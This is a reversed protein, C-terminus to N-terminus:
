LEKKMFNKLIELGVSGSKEPHFQTAFINDKEISATFTENAYSCTAGTYDNLPAFYSHVFYVMPHAGLGSYLATKKAELNNWGMHPIKFNGTFKKIEGEVIGLGQYEGDEYSKEYLMQMGLCIGLFPKKDEIARVVAKDIGTKKLREMAQCFAGVGPLILRNAANIIDLDSTIIANEGIFEFAKQVSRLNGMGYDIIINNSTWAM